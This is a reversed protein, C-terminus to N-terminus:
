AARRLGGGRAGAWPPLPWRTRATRSAAPAPRGRGRHLHRCADVVGRGASGRWRPTGRKTPGSGRSSQLARAPGRRVGRAAGLADIGTSAPRWWAPSTATAGSSACCRSPTGCRSTRSTPGRCPRTAPTSRDVRRRAARRRRAPWSRPGVSVGATSCTASPAASPRRRRGRPPRRAAAAPTASTWAAPIAHRVVEPNFNFFTAIVVEAPVPGMPAARSAFYGDFGTVGSRRTPPRRRRARLLDIGHYPELTRWMKRAMVPEMAGSGLPPDPPTALRYLARAGAAAPPGHRATAQSQWGPAASPDSCEVRSRRGAPGGRRTHM